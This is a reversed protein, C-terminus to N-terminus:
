SPGANRVDEEKRKRKKTMGAVKRLCREKHRTIKAATGWGNKFEKTESVKGWRRIDLRKRKKKKTGESKSVRRIRRAKNTAAGKGKFPNLLCFLARERREKRDSHALRAKKEGGTGRRTGTGSGMRGIKRNLHSRMERFGDKGRKKEGGKIL